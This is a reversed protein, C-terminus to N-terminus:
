FNHSLLKADSRTIIVNKPVSIKYTIDESLKKGNIYVPLKLNPMYLRMSELDLNQIKTQFRGIRELHKIVEQSLDNAKIEIEIHIYDKTWNDAIVEGELDVVLQTAGNINKSSVLTITAPEQAYFISNLCVLLFTFCLNKLITM